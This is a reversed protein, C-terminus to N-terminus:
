TDAIHSITFSILGTSTISCNESSWGVIVTDAGCVLRAGLLDIHKLFLYTYGGVLTIVGASATPLDTIDNVEVFEAHNPEYDFADIEAKTYYELFGSSTHTYLINIKDGSELTDSITLTTTVFSYQSSNLEQGNVFVAYIFSPTGSLTFDQSSTYSFEERTLPSGGSPIVNLPVPIISRVPNSGGFQFDYTPNSGSGVKTGYFKIVIRDTSVFIGDNWLGNAFFEAYIASTIQQTNNSQFILTETGGSDRKYVRFFFEAQGSGGTRRINGITTM